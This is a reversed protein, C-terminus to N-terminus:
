EKYEKLTSRLSWWDIPANPWRVKIVDLSRTTSTVQVVVGIDGEVRYDLDSQLSIVKSSKKIM